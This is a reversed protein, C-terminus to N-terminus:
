DLDDFQGRTDQREHLIRVVEITMGILRYFIIHSGVPYVRCNPFADPRSSGLEPYSRINDLAEIFELEYNDAREAGWAV